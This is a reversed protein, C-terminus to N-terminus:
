GNRPPDPPRDGDDGPEDSTGDQDSLDQDEGEAPLRLRQGALAWADVYRSPKACEASLLRDRLRRLIAWVMLILTLALLALSLWALRALLKKTPLDPVQGFGQLAFVLLATLGAAIVGLGAVVLGFSVTRLARPPDIEM